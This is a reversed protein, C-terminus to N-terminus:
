STLRALAIVGILEGGENHALSFSIDMLATSGDGLMAKTRVASDGQKVAGAEIARHFGVWHANRLHEPIIIDLSSGLARDKSLGFIVEARRNWVQIVGRLDSVVLADPLDDLLRESIEISM